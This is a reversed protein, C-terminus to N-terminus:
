AAGEGREGSSQPSIGDEEGPRVAKDSVDPLEALHKQLEEPDLWGKRLALRKDFRLNETFRQM